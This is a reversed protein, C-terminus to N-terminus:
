TLSSCFQEFSKIIIHRMCILRKWASDGVHWSSYTPFKTVNDNRRSAGSIIGTHFFEFM